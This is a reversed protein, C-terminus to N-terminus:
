RVRSRMDLRHFFGAAPIERRQACPPGPDEPRRSAHVSEVLTRKSCNAIYHLVYGCHRFWNYANVPTVTALVQSLATELAERTRARATRLGTKGKSWCPEIPLLDPSYLPLYLLRVRRRVLMQQIGVAQHARLNDLV